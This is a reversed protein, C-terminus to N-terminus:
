FLELLMCRASGGGYYEITRIDPSILTTYYQSLQKEQAATLTKVGAASMVLMREGGRGVVELSNGCFSKMQENTFEIVERHRRLLRLMGERDSLCESCIGALGTGLWLVVDAHYVPLGQYDTAFRVLDVNMKGAWERAPADYSRDSINSYAIDHLRDLVLAGTSELAMGQNEYGSLDITRTYQKALLGLLDSRREIKRNDALMPYLVMTGAGQADRHTSVWNNCFIDDPSEEVGLTSLVNVGHAVLMDRFVRFEGVAQEHIAAVNRDDDHQYLNTARTQPNAHFRGPEMVMIHNTSQSKPLTMRSERNLNRQPAFVSLETGITYM